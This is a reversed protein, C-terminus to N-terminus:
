LIIEIFISKNFLSRVKVNVYILDSYKIKNWIDM